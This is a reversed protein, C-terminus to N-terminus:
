CRSSTQGIVWIPIEHGSDTRCAAYRTGGATTTQEAAIHQAQNGYASIGALVTAAASLTAVTGLCSRIFRPLRPASLWYLGFSVASLAVAILFFIGNVVSDHWSIDFALGPYGLRKYYLYSPLRLIIGGLGALVISIGIRRVVRRVESRRRARLMDAAVIWALVLGFATLVSVIEDRGYLIARVILALTPGVAAMCVVGCLLTGIHWCAKIARFRDLGIVATADAEDATAWRSAGARPYADPLTAVFPHIAVRAFLNMTGTILLLAVYVAFLLVVVATTSRSLNSTYGTEACWAFAILASIISTAVLTIWRNRMYAPDDDRTFSRGIRRFRQPAHSRAQRAIWVAAIELYKCLMGFAPNMLRALVDRVREILSPGTATAATAESPPPTVASVDALAAVRRGNYTMGQLTPAHHTFHLSSYRIPELAIREVTAHCYADVLRTYLRVTAEEVSSPSGSGRIDRVYYDPGNESTDLRVWGVSTLSERARERDAESGAIEVHCRVRAVLFNMLYHGDYGLTNRFRNNGM